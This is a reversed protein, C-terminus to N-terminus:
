HFVRELRLTTTVLVAAYFLCVAGVVVPALVRWAFGTIMATGEARRRRRELQTRCRARVHAARDADPALAMLRNLGDAAADHADSSTM